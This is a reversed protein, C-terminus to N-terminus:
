SLQAVIVVLVIALIVLAAIVGPALGSRSSSAAPRGRVVERVPERVVERERVPERVVERVPERVVERERIPEDPPIASM